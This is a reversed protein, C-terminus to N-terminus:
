AYHAYTEWLALVRKQFLSVLQDHDVSNEDMHHIWSIAISPKNSILFCGLLVWHEYLSPFYKFKSPKSSFNKFILDAKFIVWVKSLGQIRSNETPSLVKSLSRFRYLIVAGFLPVIKYYNRTSIEGNDWDLM